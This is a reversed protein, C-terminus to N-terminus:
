RRALLERGFRVARPISLPLFLSNIIMFFQGRTRNLLVFCFVSSVSYSILTSYAAGIGGFSPILAFNCAVNVVAGCLHSILSFGLINEMILWKSTLARTYVFISAWIHISLIAASHQYANGYLMRIVFPAALTTGIALCVGSLCLFDYGQQLRQHYAVPNSSRLEMLRPYISAAVAVAGFYWVESLRAAVAYEGVTGSTALVGLMVQDIKLNVAEAVGSLILPWSTLVLARATSLKAFEVSFRGGQKRYFRNLILAVLVIEVVYAWAFAIISANLMVLGVKIMVGVLMGVANAKVTYSSATKAEFWYDLVHFSGLTTSLFFVATIAWAGDPLVNTLKAVLVGAVGCVTGASLRFLLATSVLEDSRWPERIIERSILSNLGLHCLPAFLAAFAMSLSLVGFSDVGLHRAVLANVLLGAGMQLVRWALLWKANVVAKKLATPAATSAIDTRMHSVPLQDVPLEWAASRLPFSYSSSEDM